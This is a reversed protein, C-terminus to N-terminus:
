LATRLWRDSSYETEGPLSDTLDPIRVATLPAELIAFPNGRLSNGINFLANTFNCKGVCDKRGFSKGVNDRVSQLKRDGSGCDVVDSIIQRRNQAVL